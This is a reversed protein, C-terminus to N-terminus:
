IHILSLGAVVGLYTYSVGPIPECANPAKHVLPLYVFYDQEAPSAAPPLDEAIAMGAMRGAAAILLCVAVVFLPRFLRDM